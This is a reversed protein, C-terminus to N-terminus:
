RTTDGRTTDVRGEILHISTVWSMNHQQRSGERGEEVGGGGKQFFLLSTFFVPIFTLGSACENGWVCVCM